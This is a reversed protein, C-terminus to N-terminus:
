SGGSGPEVPVRVPGSRSEEMRRRAHELRKAYGIRELPRAALRRELKGLEEQAAGPRGLALLLEVLQMRRNSTPSAAVAGQLNVLARPFEGRHLSLHSALELLAGRQTRFPKRSALAETLDLLRASDVGGCEGAKLVGVITDLESIVEVGAPKQRSALALTRRWWAEGMGQELVCGRIAMQKLRPYALEPQAQELELFLTMAATTEGRLLYQDGLDM